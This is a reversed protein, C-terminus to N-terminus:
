VFKRFRFPSSNNLEVLDVQRVLTRFLRGRLLVGIINFVIKVVFVIFLASVSDFSSSSFGNTGVTFRKCCLQRLM